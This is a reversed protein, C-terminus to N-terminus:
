TRPCSPNRLGTGNSVKRQICHFGHNQCINPGIITQEGIFRIICGILDFRKSKQVIPGSWYSFISWKGFLSFDLLHFSPHRLCLAPFGNAANTMQCDRGGFDAHIDDDNKMMNNDSWFHLNTLYSASLPLRRTVETANSHFVAHRLPFALGQHGRVPEADAVLPVDCAAGGSQWLQRCPPGGNEGWRGEGVPMPPPPVM